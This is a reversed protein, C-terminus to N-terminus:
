LQTEKLAQNILRNLRARLPALGGLIEPTIDPSRLYEAFTRDDGAYGLHRLIRFVTISELTERESSSLPRGSALFRAANEVCDFLEPHPEEGQLLRKLLAALRAMLAKDEPRVPKPVDLERAGVLRWYEKGRVLSVSSFSAPAAFYRLKSKELRIGQAVAQVLGLDRTFISVVRGAEGYPRSEVILGPTTAISYM